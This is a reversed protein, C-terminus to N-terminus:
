LAANLVDCTVLTAEEAVWVQPCPSLRAIGVTSFAVPLPLSLSGCHGCLGQCEHPCSLHEFCTINGVSGEHHCLIWGRRWGGTVDDELM